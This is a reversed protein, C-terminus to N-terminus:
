RHGQGDRDARARAGEARAARYARCIAGGREGYAEHLGNVFLSNLDEEAKMIPRKTTTYLEKDANLIQVQAKRKAVRDQVPLGDDGAAHACAAFLVLVIPASRYM